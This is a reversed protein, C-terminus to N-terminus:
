VTAIVPYSVISRPYSDGTFACSPPRAPWHLGTCALVPWCLGACAMELGLTASTGAPVLGYGLGLPAAVFNSPCTQVCHIAPSLTPQLRLPLHGESTGAPEEASGLRFSGGESNQSCKCPARTQPRDAKM